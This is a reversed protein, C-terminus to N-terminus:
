RRGTRGCAGLGFGGRLHAGSWSFLGCLTPVEVQGGAPVEAQGNVRQPKCAVACQCLSDTHREKWPRALLLDRMEDVEHASFVEAIEILM